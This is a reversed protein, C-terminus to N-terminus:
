RCARAVQLATKQCQRHGAEDVRGPHGELRRHGWPARLWSAFWQLRNSPGQREFKPWQGRSMSNASYCTPNLCAYLSEFTSVGPSVRCPTPCSRKEFSGRRSVQVGALRWFFTTSRSNSGHCRANAHPSDLTQVTGLTEVTLFGDGDEVRRRVGTMVILTWQRKVLRFVELGFPQDTTLRADSMRTRGLRNSRGSPFNTTVGGVMRGPSHVTM